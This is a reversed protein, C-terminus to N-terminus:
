SAITKKRHSTYNDILKFLVILILILTIRWIVVWNAISIALQYEGRFFPHGIMGYVIPWVPVVISIFIPSLSVSHNKTWLYISLGWFVLLIANIYGWYRFTFIDRFGFLLDNMYNMGMQAFPVRILIWVGEYIALTLILGARDRRRRTKFLIMFDIFLALMLSPSVPVISTFFYLWPNPYWPKQPVGLGVQYPLNLQNLYAGLYFLVLSLFALIYITSVSLGFTERAIKKRVVSPEGFKQMAIDIASKEEYGSDMLNLVEEYLHASMEEIWQSKENKSLGSHRTIKQLYTHFQEEIVVTGGGPVVGLNAQKKAM